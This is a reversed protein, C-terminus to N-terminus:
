ESKMERMMLNLVIERLNITNTSTNIIQNVAYTIPMEVNYQHSLSIAAPLANVGEVVMGVEKLADNVSMGQGLYYGFKNNRSHQSTATVILDGVGSLGAFTYISCGMVNGLTFIEHIGRTILAAKTNDGYGLGDSIGAAIAIINKLAGNLEVGLIDTNTYIRFNPNSFYKQVIKALDLHKSSAVLASPIDKAVEEAHTPGSLAVINSTKIVDELVQSMTFLTDQEIGKSVTILLQDPSYNPKFKTATQRMYISPVAFIIINSNHVCEDIDHLFKIDNPIFIGNLNPHVRTTSLIDIESQIPSWVKITHGMNSLMRALAVGWTGAGLISIVLQSLENM